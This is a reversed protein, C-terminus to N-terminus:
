RLFLKFIYGRQFERLRYIDEMYFLPLSTSFHRGEVVKVM